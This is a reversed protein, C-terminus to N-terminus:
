VKLSLVDDEKFILFGALRACMLQITIQCIDADEFAFDNLRQSFFFLQKFHKM